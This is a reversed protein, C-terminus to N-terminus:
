VRIAVVRFGIHDSRRHPEFPLRCASRCFPETEIWAGGRRVRSTTGDPNTMGKPEYLDPDTGGPRPRHFWDRCWEWVNGHMDHLGWPNAAYSGVPRARGPAPARRVPPGDGFNAQDKSLSDGVSFATVTGARCVYEWQAETPLRFVWDIPLANSRHANRTLAACFAEADEYSVWYVPVDDGEGFQASPPKDPFPGILQTWQKQTVEYKATWFGKTLTVEVQSEDDRRERETPPSGMLFRGPPCWCFRIGELVREEGPRTGQVSQALAKSIPAGAITLASACTLRTLRTLFQRRDTQM